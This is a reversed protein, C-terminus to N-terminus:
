PQTGEQGRPKLLKDAQRQIKGKESHVWIKSRSGNVIKGFQVHM